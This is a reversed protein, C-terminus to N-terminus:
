RRWAKTADSLAAREAGDLAFALAGANTRAQKANKAGPIPLVIPDELLWRIAVEPVSRGHKAAIEGMLALVPALRELASARFTPLFRRVGTARAENPRYKGSLAGMALPSYAILTVGLERCADLVGDVEPKRHLLSYEVQNSALAVGEDALVRHALRLQDASYNSVGVARVKCARHAAALHRMLTPISMWAIPYHIQYLEVRERGLRALSADLCAPLSGAGRWPSPPFKTAISVDRGRALQGVREESRGESYMAATDILTVGGEIGAELAAREEEIGDSPGYAGQAPGWGGRDGWTMAGM